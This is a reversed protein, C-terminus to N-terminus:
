NPIKLNTLKITLIQYKLLDQQIVKWLTQKDPIELPPEIIIRNDIIRKETYLFLM